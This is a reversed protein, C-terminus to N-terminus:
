GQAARAMLDARPDEGKTAAAYAEVASRADDNLKQPVVVQVTVRLDGKSKGNSV